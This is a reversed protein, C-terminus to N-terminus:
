LEGFLREIEACEREIAQDEANLYNTALVLHALITDLQRRVTLAADGAGSANPPREKWLLKAATELREVQALLEDINAYSYQVGFAEFSIPKGSSM